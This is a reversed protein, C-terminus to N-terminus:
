RWFVSFPPVFDEPKKVQCFLKRQGYDACLRLAAGPELDAIIAAQKTVKNSTVPLIYEKGVRTVGLRALDAQGTDFALRATKWDGYTGLWAAEGPMDYHIAGCEGPAFVTGPGGAGNRLQWVKPRNGGTKLTLDHTAYLVSSGSEVVTITPRGVASSCPPPQSQGEVPAAAALATLTLGAVLPWRM